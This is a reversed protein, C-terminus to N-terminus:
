PFTSWSVLGFYHIRWSVPVLAQHLWCPDADSTERLRAQVCQIIMGGDNESFLACVSKQCQFVHVNVMLQVGTTWSLIMNTLLKSFFPFPPDCGSCRVYSSSYLQMLKRYQFIGVESFLTGPRFYGMQTCYSPWVMIYTHCAAHMQRPSSPLQPGSLLRLVTSHCTSPWLHIKFFDSITRIGFKQSRWNRTLYIALTSLLIM